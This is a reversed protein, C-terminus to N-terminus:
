RDSVVRFGIHDDRADPNRSYRNAARAMAAKNRWSGGRLVKIQGSHPGRPDKSIGLRYFTPDYWDAMWELTNGAMSYLGAWSKGDAFEGVPNTAGLRNDTNANLPQFSNGWPYIRAEIGRAAYEWEAETPLRGGRWRAYADAEYWSVGICPQEPHIFNLRQLPGTIEFEQVWAWGDSNWLESRKYGGDEIFHSYAINTVPYIDIWFGRTLLVEHQPLEDEEAHKDLFPDSGMKFQGAPLWSQWIEKSDQREVIQDDRSPPSFTRGLETLLQQLATELNPRADIYQYYYMRTHLDCTELYLPHIPRQNQDFYFWERYVEKRHPMSHPSLLLVMRSSNRLAKDLVLDWEFGSKLFSRDRFVKLGSQKLYAEVQAAMPEDQRAYSIFVDFEDARAEIPDFERDLTSILSSFTTQQDQPLQARLSKLLCLVVSDQPNSHEWLLMDSVLQGTFTSATGQWNIHGLLTCGHLAEELLKRREVKDRMYPLLLKKLQEKLELDYNM